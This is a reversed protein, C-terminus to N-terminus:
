FGLEDWIGELAAGGEVREVIGEGGVEGLRSRAPDQWDVCPDLRVMGCSRRRAVLVAAPVVLGYQSRLSPPYWSGISCCGHADCPPRTHNSGSCHVRRKASSWCPSPQGRRKIPDNGVAGADTAVLRHQRVIMTVKSKLM